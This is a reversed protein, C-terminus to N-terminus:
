IFCCSCLSCWLSGEELPMCSIRVRVLRPDEPSPISVAEVVRNWGEGTSCMLVEASVGPWRLTGDETVWIDSRYALCQVM